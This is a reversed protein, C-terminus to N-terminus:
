ETCGRLTVLARKCAEKGLKNRNIIIYNDDILNKCYLNILYKEKSSNRFMVMFINDKNTHKARYDNVWQNWDGIKLLTKRTPMIGIEDLYGAYEELTTYECSIGISKEVHRLQKLYKNNIVSGSHIKEGYSTSIYGKHFLLHYVLLKYEDRHSPIQCKEKDVSSSSLANLALIPPFCSIGRYEPHSVSWIDVRLDGYQDFLLSRAKNIDRDDVLFDLDSGSAEIEELSKFKRLVVYRVQNKNFCEIVAKYGGHNRSVFYTARTTKNPAKLVLWLGYSSARMSYILGAVIAQGIM